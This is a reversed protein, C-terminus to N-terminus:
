PIESCFINLYSGSLIGATCIRIELQCKNGGQEIPNLYATVSGGNPIYGFSTQCGLDELCSMHQYSGTLMGNVCVRTESLCQSGPAAQPMLYAVVTGGETVHAGWPTLCDAKLSACLIFAFLSVAINKM